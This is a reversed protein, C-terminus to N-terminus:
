RVPRAHRFPRTLEDRVRLRSNSRVPFRPSPAQPMSCTRSSLLANPSVCTASVAEVLLAAFFASAVWSSSAAAREAEWAAALASACTDQGERPTHMPKPLLLPSGSSRSPDAGGASV